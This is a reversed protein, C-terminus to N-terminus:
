AVGGPYPMPVVSCPNCVPVFNVGFVLRPQGEVISWKVVGTARLGCPGRDLPAGCTVCKPANPDVPIAPRKRPTTM